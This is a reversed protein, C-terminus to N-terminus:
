SMMVSVAALTFFFMEAIYVADRQWEGPYHKRVNFLINTMAANHTTDITYQGINRGWFAGVIMDLTNYVVFWDAGEELADGIVKAGSTLVFYIYDQVDGDIGDSEPFSAEGFHCDVADVLMNAIVGNKRVTPADNTKVSHGHRIFMELRKSKEFENEIENETPKRSYDIGENLFKLLPADDYVTFWESGFINSEYNKRCFRVLDTEHKRAGYHFESIFEWHKKDNAGLKRCLNKHQAIRGKPNRNSFGIKVRNGIRVAYIHGYKECGSQAEQKLREIIEQPLM